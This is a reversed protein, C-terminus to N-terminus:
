KRKIGLFVLIIDEALREQEGGGVFYSPSAKIFFSADEIGKEYGEKRVEEATERLMREVTELNYTIKM